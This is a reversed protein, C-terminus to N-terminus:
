IVYSIAVPSIDSNLLQGFTPSAQLTALTGGRPDLVYEDVPNHGGCVGESSVTSQNGLSETPNGNALFTLRTLKAQHNIM